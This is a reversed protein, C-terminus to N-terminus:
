TVEVRQWVVFHGMLDEVPIVQPAFSRMKDRACSVYLPQITEQLRWCLLMHNELVQM